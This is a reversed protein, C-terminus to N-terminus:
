VEVGDRKCWRRMKDLRSYTVGNWLQDVGKLEIIMDIYNLIDGIEEQFNCWAEDLRISKDKTEYRRLKSVAVTLEATEEMLRCLIDDYTCNPAVAKIRTYIESDPASDILAQLATEGDAFEGFKSYAQDRERETATRMFDELRMIYRRIVIILAQWKTM